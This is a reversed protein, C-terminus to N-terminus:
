GSPARACQGACHPDAVATKGVGPEGILCPNNKQRRNLIQLVRDTERERGVIRDLRGERARRTLNICFQELLKPQAKKKGGRRPREEEAPPQPQPAPSQSTPPQMAGFPGMAFMQPNKLMNQLFPPLALAHGDADDVKGELFDQLENEMEEIEESGLGMQALMDNVPQIGLEKACQLCYGENITKDNEQRAVFVVATRKKCRTCLM